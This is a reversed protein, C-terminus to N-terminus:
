KTLLRSPLRKEARRVFLRIMLSLLHNPYVLDLIVDKSSREKTSNSSLKVELEKSQEIYKEVTFTGSDIKNIADASLNRVLRQRKQDLAESCLNEFTSTNNLDLTALESIIGVHRRDFTKLDKMAKVVSLADPVIGREVCKAIAEYIKVNESDYFCGECKGIMEISQGGKSLMLRSLIEQQVTRM